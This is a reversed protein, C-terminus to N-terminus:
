FFYFFFPKTLYVSLQAEFLCHLYVFLQAELRKKKVEKIGEENHTMSPSRSVQFYNCSVFPFCILVIGYVEETISQVLKSTEKQLYHNSRM